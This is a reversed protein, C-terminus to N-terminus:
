REPEVWILLAALAAWSFVQVRAGIQIALHFPIAVAIALLRTRRNLLGFGIIFETLVASKSFWWQFTGDALLDLLWAPAGGDLAIQRNDIARLQLVTGGWWDGDVLKSTASAIYVTPVLIRLLWLPWLPTVRPPQAGKRRRRVVADLSLQEGPGLMTTGALLILLFARNHAFHTTSLFLNYAVFSTVYVGSVRSFLGVSFLVCGAVALVLLTKYLGPGAEPYWDVYPDYFRDSYIVGDRLNSLFPRLHLLTIPGLLMRLVAISRVSGRADILTNVRALPRRLSTM